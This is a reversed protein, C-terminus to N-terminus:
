LVQHVKILEEDVTDPANALMADRSFSEKAVDDRCVNTLPVAHATPEVGEVDLESLMDIYGVIGEMDKHLSEEEEKTLDLRALLAIKAVDFQNKDSMNIYRVDM